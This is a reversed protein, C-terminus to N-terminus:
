PHFGIQLAFTNVAAVDCEAALGLKWLSYTAGVFGHSLPIAERALDVKPTEETGVALSHKVGLYPTVSAIRKSAVFGVSYVNFNFDIVGTLSTFSASVAAAPIRASERLFAYKVAGGALGYNARPASTWFGAVDVRSTVGLTARLAPLKIRDGLPCSADPHTFTNIWAPDHQDVPTVSYDVGLNFRGKGLPEAPGLSKFDIMAGAERVFTEWQAQTLSPDIVMSCTKVNPDIHWYVGGDNGQSYAPRTLLLVVPLVLRALGRDRM